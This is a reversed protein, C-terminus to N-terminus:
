VAARLGADGSHVVAQPDDIDLRLLSM